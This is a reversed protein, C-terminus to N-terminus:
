SWWDLNRRGEDDQAFKDQAYDFSRLIEANQRKVKGKERDWIDWKGSYCYLIASV